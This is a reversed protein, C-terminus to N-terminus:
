REPQHQLSNRDVERRSGEEAGVWFLGHTGQWVGLVAPSLQAELSGDM